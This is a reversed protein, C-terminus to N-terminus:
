KVVVGGLSSVVSAFEAIELDGFYGGDVDTAQLNFYGLGIAMEAIMKADKLGYGFADKLASRIAIVLKIKHQVADFNDALNIAFTRSSVIFAISFM